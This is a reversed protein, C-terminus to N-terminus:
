LEMIPLKTVNEDKFIFQVKKYEFLIKVKNALDILM